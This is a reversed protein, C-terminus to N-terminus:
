RWTGFTLCAPNPKHDAQNGLFLPLPWDSGLTYNAQYPIRLIEVLDMFTVNKSQLLLRVNVASAINGYKEFIKIGPTNVKILQHGYYVIEM